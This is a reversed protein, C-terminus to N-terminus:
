YRIVLETRAGAFAPFFRCVGSVCKLAARQEGFLFRLIVDDGFKMQGGLNLFHQVDTDDDGDPNNTLFRLARLIDGGKDLSKNIQSPRTSYEHGFVVAYRSKYKLSLYTQGERWQELNLYRNRHWM